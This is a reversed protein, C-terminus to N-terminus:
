YSARLGALFYGGPVRYGNAPEFKSNLINYGNAFLALQPHVQYTIALSVITGPNSTGTGVSNGTNDILFDQFSGTYTVQPAITLNPVPMVKATVSVTNQPRRLLLEGTDANEAQTYTWTGDISVWQEPRWVLESEVGELHASGINAQTYYPASTNYNTVILNNVQENFYTETLTAWDPRGFAPLDVIVGAEYGQASEPLLNPNGIYGFNDVGYRDFLSPARFATGYAFKFRTDIEPVALVGGLRWTFPSDNLVVDQRIQGTVTLRNFFTGQLGAYGANDEQHAKASSIYPVGLTSSDVKVNVSDATYEYGFTLDANTLWHMGVLPALHLTNNFQVDTRYGHYRSDNTAQNPDLPNLAETYQRDDQLRGVYIATEFVGGFLKSDVGIRGLMTNDTGTSNDDDFTPSGLSNFGFTSMRGRLLLSVRTGEIPTLGLNLTGTEGNFGQPVGSYIVERPPTYDFGVFSQGQLILAYDLPGSIGTLAVDGVVQAPYGGAISTDFHVGEQDGTRTIINIVGGIAGSGYLSAMPGRVVEIRAVDALTDIGFNFAGSADAADNIPFGDRLVLVQDSNTGRVFVSANGGPGGSQVVNIGPVASLVQVLTVYGRTEIEDRTIVTVGAPIDEIPTAVRTATVVVDPSTAVPPQVQPLTQTQATQAPVTQTADSQARAIAPLLAITAIALTRRM